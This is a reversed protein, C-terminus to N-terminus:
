PERLLALAGGLADNFLDKLTDAWYACFGRACGEPGGLLLQELLEVLEVGLGLLLMAAFALLGARQWRWRLFRERLLFVLAFGAILHAYTDYTTGAFARPYLDFAAGASQIALLALLLIRSELSAERWCTWLLILFAATLAWAAFERAPILAILALITAMLPVAREM